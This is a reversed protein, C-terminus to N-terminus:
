KQHLSAVHPQVIRAFRELGTARAPHLRAGVPYRLDADAIPPPSFAVRAPISPQDIAAGIRGVVIGNVRGVSFRQILQEFVFDDRDKVIAIRFPDRAAPEVDDPLRHEAHPWAETCTSHDLLVGFFHVPWDHLPLLWLRLSFLSFPSPQLNFYYLREM